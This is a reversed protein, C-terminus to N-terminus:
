KLVQGNGNVEPLIIGKLVLDGGYVGKGKLRITIETEVTENQELLIDVAQKSKLSLIDDNNDNNIYVMDPEFDVTIDIPLNGFAATITVNSTITLILPNDNEQGTPAGIWGTFEFGAEATATITFDTAEEISNTGDQDTYGGNGVGPSSVVVDYFIPDHFYEGVFFLGLKVAYTGVVTKNNNISRPNINNSLVSIVDTVVGNEWIFGKQRTDSLHNYWGVVVGNDNLAQAAVHNIDAENIIIDTFIGNEYLFGKQIGDIRAFGSIQNNENIDTLETKDAGPYSVYTWNNGDRIFGFSGVYGVMIDAENIGRYQTIEAPYDPSTPLTQWSAPWYRVFSPSIITFNDISQDTFETTDEPWQGPGAYVAAFELSPWKLFWLKEPQNGGARERFRGVITDTNTIKGPNLRNITRGFHPSMDVIHIDYGALVDTAMLVFVCLVSLFLKKFM